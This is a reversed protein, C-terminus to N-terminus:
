IMSLASIASITIPDKVIPLGEANFNPDSAAASNTKKCGTLCGAFASILVATALVIGISRKRFKKM